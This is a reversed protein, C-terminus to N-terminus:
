YLKFGKSKRSRRRRGGEADGEAPPPPPPMTAPKEDGEAGGMKLHAKKARRTLAAKRGTTKLGAKKLMRKLQKATAGRKRGGSMGGEGGEVPGSGSYGAPTLSSM